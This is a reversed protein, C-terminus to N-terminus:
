GSALAEVVSSTDLKRNDQRHGGDLDNLTDTFVVDVDVGFLAILSSLQREIARHAEVLYREDSADFLEAAQQQAQRMLEGQAKANMQIVDLLGIVRGAQIDYPTVDILRLTGELPPLVVRYRGPGLEEVDANGVRRLDVSYQKEFSFIMAVKAQSLLAPPMWSWGKTATAIEKAFVELGVLKGSARVREAITGVSVVDSGVARGRRNLVSFVGVAAAVGLVIGAALFLTEFVM